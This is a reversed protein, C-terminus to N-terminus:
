LSNEYSNPPTCLFDGVRILKGEINKVKVITLNETEEIPVINNTKKKFELNYLFLSHKTRLEKLICYVCNEDAVIATKDTFFFIIEGFATTSNVTKYKVFSNKRKMPSDFINGSYIVNHLKIKGFIDVCNFRHSRLEEIYTLSVEKKYKSLLKIDSLGDPNEVRHKLNRYGHYLQLTNMIEKGVKKTGHIIRSLFGNINEYPFASNSWLPGWRRVTLPLHLLSHVNYRNDKYRYLRVIDKVFSHLMKESLELDAPSIKDSLLIEMSIVLLLWHQYYDAKAFEELIIPSYFLLWSRLETAKWKNVLKLSRPLRQLFNPPKITKLFIDIECLEDGIYWPGKVFFWLTTIHLVVGLLVSHMYEPIVFKSLDLFPVKEMITRRKVGNINIEKKKKGLERSLKEVDAIQQQMTQHSRLPAEPAQYSFYSKRKKEEERYPNKQRKQECNNCSSLGNHNILGQLDARVPADAIALPAVVKSIHVEKTIPHVWKVGGQAQIEILSEVFPKLFTNIKPKHSNCWIGVVYTFVNRLKPPVNAITIILPWFGSNSSKRKAVGDTSFILILDYKGHFVKKIAVYEEGDRLDSIHDVDDNKRDDEELTQALNTTQFLYVLFDKLSFGYFIEEEFCQCNSCAEGAVKQIAPCKTCFIFEIDPIVTEYNAVFRFLSDVTKPMMNGKPLIKQYFKLDDKLLIKSKKHVIFSKLVDLVAKLTSINAGAYLYVTEKDNNPYFDSDGCKEDDSEDSSQDSFSSDLQRKEDDPEQM